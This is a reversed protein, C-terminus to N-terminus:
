QPEALLLVTALGAAMRKVDNARDLTLGEELSHARFTSFGSGLTVAEIGKSMPINSDTSSAGLKPRFGSAVAAATAIRVIRRDPPTIGVPRDGVLKTEVTIAGKATSRAKNERAVAAPLLALFREDLAKLEAAGESRMDVTMAVEFPISNVSTGGSLLGINYTTRPAAPVALRGFATIADAMAYAPNVMGFDGMSHGGPGKFSVQYRRSGVGANTIRGPGGPEFSIFCAIRGALPGAGFLHRMGRLDGPGEEGVNGMFIIDAKTRAHAADLARIFGLLVALSSTDDGIGPALLRNGVRRVKVDTAAPFVTDLHASVVIVPGGGSGRRWGYVNGAADMEVDALGHDKLMRMYARGRAEEGFPPAPIETLTILDRVIRDYDRDLAARAVEFTPSSLLARAAADPDPAAAAPRAAALAL